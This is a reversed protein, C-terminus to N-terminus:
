WLVRVFIRSRARSASIPSFMKSCDRMAACSPRRFSPIPDRRCPGSSSMSPRVSGSRRLGTECVALCAMRSRQSPLLLLNLPLQGCLRLRRCLKWPGFRRRPRCALRARRRRLARLLRVAQIKSITTLITLPKSLTRLTRRKLVSNPIPRAKRVAFRLPCPSPTRQSPRSAISGYTAQFNLSSGDTRMRRTTSVRRPREHVSRKSHRIPRNGTLHLVRSLTDVAFGPGCVPQAPM